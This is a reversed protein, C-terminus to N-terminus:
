TIFGQWRMPAKVGTNKWRNRSSGTQVWSPYIREQMQLIQSPYTLRSQRFLLFSTLQLNLVIDLELDNQFRCLTDKHRRRSLRFLFGLPIYIFLYKYHYLKFINSMYKINKFFNLVELGKISRSFNSRSPISTGMGPSCELRM